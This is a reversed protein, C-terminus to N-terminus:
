RPLKPYRIRLWRQGVNQGWMESCFIYVLWDSQWKFILFFYGPFPLARARIKLSKETDLHWLM